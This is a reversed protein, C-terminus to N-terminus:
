FTQTTGDKNTVTITTTTPYTGAHCVAKSADQFQSNDGAPMYEIVLFEPKKDEKNDKSGIMCTGEPTGDTPPITTM